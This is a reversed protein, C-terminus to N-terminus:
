MSKSIDILQEIDRDKIIGVIGFDGMEFAERMETTWNDMFFARAKYENYLVIVQLLAEGNYKDIITWGLADEYEKDKSMKIYTSIQKQNYPLAEVVVCDYFIKKLKDEIKDIAQPFWAPYKISEYLVYDNEETIYEVNNDDIIKQGEKLFIKNM